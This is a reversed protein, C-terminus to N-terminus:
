GSERIRSLISKKPPKEVDKVEFDGLFVRIKEVCEACLDFKNDDTEFSVVDMAPKRPHRDCVRM